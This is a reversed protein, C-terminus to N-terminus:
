RTYIITEVLTKPHAKELSIQLTNELVNNLAINFEKIAAYLVSM